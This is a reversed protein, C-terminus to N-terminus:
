PRSPVSEAQALIRAVIEPPCDGPAVPVLRCESLSRFWMMQRRAFQWTHRFIREETEERSYRGALYELVERYGLAQAATRSLKGYRHLLQQVEEILGLRFMEAVRRRIRQRLDERSRWLVYVRCLEAPRGQEFQRQLRSIPQGTKLFVELARVIRRTDHPHLRAAAPPDVEALRRHLYEPPQGSAEALLRQRLEWDPAPGIFLGRLLAKLYLPTGGVFLAVKGASRIQRVCRHAEQLYSAISFDETPEVLDILHHPIQRRQEPSPKATGIDMGRYVAMSDLSLIEADLSRALLLGVESKGSATPGVLYWADELPPFQELRPERHDPATTM